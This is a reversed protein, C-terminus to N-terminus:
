DIEKLINNEVELAPFYKQEKHAIQYLVDNMPGNSLYKLTDVFFFFVNTIILKLSYYIILKFLIINGRVCNRMELSVNKCVWWHFM